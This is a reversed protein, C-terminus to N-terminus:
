PRSHVQPTDFYLQLPKFLRLTVQCGPLKGWVQKLEISNRVVYRPVM